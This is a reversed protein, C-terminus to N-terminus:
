GGITSGSFFTAPMSDTSTSRYVRIGVGVAPATDLSVTTANALSYETTDVGDLQVKVDQADIYEFTFPYLTTSGDGTFLNETTAM